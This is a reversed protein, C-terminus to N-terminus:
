SNKKSKSQTHLRSTLRRKVSRQKLMSEIEWIRKDDSIDDQVSLEAASDSRAELLICEEANSGDEEKLTNLRPSPTLPKGSEKALRIKKRGRSEREQILLRRNRDKLTEGEIESDENSNVTADCSSDDSASKIGTYLTGNVVISFEKRTSSEYSSIEDLSEAVTTVTRDEEKKM